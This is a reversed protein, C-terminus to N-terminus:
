AVLGTEAGSPSSPVTSSASSRDHERCTLQEGADAEPDAHDSDVGVHAGSGLPVRQTVVHAYDQGVEVARM